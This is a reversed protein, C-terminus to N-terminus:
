DRLAFARTTAILDCRIRALDFSGLDFTMERGQKKRLWEDSLVKLQAELGYDFPGDAPQYWYLIKGEKRAKNRATRLNQFKNGKLNFDAVSLRADEGVKFSKLGSQSFIPRL